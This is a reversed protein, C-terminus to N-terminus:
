SNVGPFLYAWAVTNLNACSHPIVIVGRREFGEYDRVLILQRMGAHPHTDEVWAAEGGLLCANFVFAGGYSWLDGWVTRNSVEDVLACGTILCGDRLPLSTVM